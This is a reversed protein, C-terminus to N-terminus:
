TEKYSRRKAARKDLRITKSRPQKRGLKRAFDRIVENSVVKGNRSIFPLTKGCLYVDHLEYGGAIDGSAHMLDFFINSTEPKQMAEFLENSTDYPKWFEDFSYVKKRSLSYGERKLLDLYQKTTAITMYAFSGLPDVVCWGSLPIKAEVWSIRTLPQGDKYLIGRCLRAKTRKYDHLLIMMLVSYEYSLNSSVWDRFYTLANCGNIDLRLYHILKIEHLYLNKASEELMWIFHRRFSERTRGSIIIDIAQMITNAFAICLAVVALWPRPGSSGIWLIGILIDTVITATVNYVWIGFDHRLIWKEFKNM